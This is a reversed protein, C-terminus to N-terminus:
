KAPKRSKVSKSSSGRHCACEARGPRLARERTRYGDFEILTPKRAHPSALLKVAEAAALMAIFAANSARAGFPRLLAGGDACQPCPPTTTGLITLTAPSDLRVILFRAGHHADALRAAADRGARTGILIAILAPHEIRDAGQQVTVDPNLARMEAVLATADHGTADLAITGVGAGALYPLVVDLDIPAAALILKAALLREQALGGIGPVIIQRSYREIQEDSLPM